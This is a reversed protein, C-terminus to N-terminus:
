GHTTVEEIDVELVCGQNLQMQMRGEADSALLALLPLCQRMSNAPLAAFWAHPISGPSVSAEPMAQAGPAVRARLCRGVGAPRVGPGDGKLPEVVLASAIMGASPSVEGVPGPMAADYAVYLVPTEDALAQVIAELLGAAFTESGATLATSPKVCGTGITWYGAAANHVSNHFRTPSCLLPNSALTSCLYDNIAGDGHTCSFVSPLSVPDVGAAECARSAAELAISVTDPARRRETPALLAPAPRSRAVADPEARGALVACATQWDPLRPAWFGVGSVRVELCTSM